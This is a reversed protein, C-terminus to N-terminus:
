QGPGIPRPGTSGEVQQGGSRNVGPGISRSRNVKSMNATSMNATSRNVAGWLMPPPSLPAPPGLGRGGVQIKPAQSGWYKQVNPLWQLLGWFIIYNKIPQKLCWSKMTLKTRANYNFHAGFWEDDLCSLDYKIKEYAYRTIQLSFNINEKKM